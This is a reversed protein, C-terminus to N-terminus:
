DHSFGEWAGCTESDPVLFQNMPSRENNCFMADGKWTKQEPVAHRCTHCTHTAKSRPEDPM